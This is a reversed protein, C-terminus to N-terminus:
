NSSESEKLKEEQMEKDAREGINLKREYVDNLLKQKLYGEYKRFDDLPEKDGCFGYKLNSAHSLIYNTGDLCAGSKLTDTSYRLKISEAVIANWTTTDVDFSFGDFYLTHDKDFYDTLTRHYHPITEYYVARIQEPYKKLTLVFSTDWTSSKIFVFSNEDANLSREHPLSFTELLHYFTRGSADDRGEKKADCAFLLVLFTLLVIRM